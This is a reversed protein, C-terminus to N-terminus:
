RNLADRCVREFLQLPAKKGTWAEFQMGAQCVFMTLGDVARLGAAEAAELLPTRLPNYVTEIIVPPKPLSALPTIPIAIDTPSPGGRMGATTCHIYADFGGRPLDEVEGAEIKGPGIARSSEALLVAKKPTRNFVVVNAGATTLAYAAARAVGGAGVVAIRKGAPDGIAEKVVCLIAPVDTNSARLRQPKGAADREITLTNAARITAAAEDLEWGMEKALRSLNEKHPSTVSVGRLNLPAHDILEGLTAKLNEYGGSSAIPGGEIGGPIPLPLYVADVGAGEFGANHVHPSLSHELPYGVVGYVATSRTISRFRYLDLLERVTPQGPATTAESRLSAFTLYGGFKSALVRSLLGFEGMALAITPRDRQALLDFLELTDRLSRARYAIKLVKAASEDRMRLIRRTLDAPRGEFDHSSLILSTSLERMQEPHEVALNIKQRINASRTYTALEVDLYRPPQEGPGFSTALREFLAIRSPEDGDYGGGESIPRCTVICPLPCDRVLQIVTTEGVPDSEGQFVEDIRLEVLDAGADKAAAADRLAASPDRVMIPVCVLSKM